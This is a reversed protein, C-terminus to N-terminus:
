YGGLVMRIGARGALELWAISTTQILATERGRCPSDSARPWRSVQLLFLLGRLAAAGCMLEVLITTGRIVPAPVQLTRLISIFIDPGRLIKAYGHEMFGYGVILRLSNAGVPYDQECVSTDVIAFARIWQRNQPDKLMAGRGLSVWLGTQGRDGSCGVRLLTRPGAQRSFVAEM